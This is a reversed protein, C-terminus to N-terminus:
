LMTHFDRCIPTIREVVDQTGLPSTALPDMARVELGVLFSGRSCAAVEAEGSAATWTGAISAISGFTPAQTVWVSFPQCIGQLHQPTEYLGGRRVRLAVLGQGSPCKVDGFSVDANTGLEPNGGLAATIHERSAARQQLAGSVYETGRCIGGLRVINGEASRHGYLGVLAGQDNCSARLRTHSAAWTSAVGITAADSEGGLEPSAPNRCRVQLQQLYGNLVGGLGRVVQGPPCRREVDRLTSASSGRFPLPTVPGGLDSWPACLLQLGHVRGNDSRARVGVVASAAPCADFTSAAAGTSVAGALVGTSTRCQAAVRTLLAVNFFTAAAISQSSLWSGAPCSIRFPATDRESLNGFPQLETEHPMTARSQGHGDVVPNQLAIDLACAEVQENVSYSYEVGGHHAYSKNHALEHLTISAVLEASPPSPPPGGDTPAPSLYHRNFHVAEGPTNFGGQATIIRGEEDAPGLDSCTVHTPMNQRLRAVIEEAYAADGPSLVADRLCDRLRDPHSLVISTVSAWADTILTKQDDTCDIHDTADPDFVLTANLPQSAAEIPADVGPSCGGLVTLAALCLSPTASRLVHNKM